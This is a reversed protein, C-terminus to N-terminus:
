TWARRPWAAARAIGPPDLDPRDRSRRRGRRRARFARVRRLDRGGAPRPEDEDARGAPPGNGRHRPRGPADGRRRLRGSPRPRDPHGRGFIRRRGGPRAFRRSQPLGPHRRDARFGGPDSRRVPRFVGSSTQEFVIIEDLTHNIVVLDDLGTGFLDGSILRTYNGEGPLHLLTVGAPGTVVTNQVYILPRQTDLSAVDPIGGTQVYPSTAFPSAPEWRRMSQHVLSRWPALM